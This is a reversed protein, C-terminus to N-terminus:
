PATTKPKEGSLWNDQIIQLDNPDVVDDGDIDGELDAIISGDDTMEWPCDNPDPLNNPDTCDCLWQDAVIAYDQLDVYCDFNLDGEFPAQCLQLADVALYSRYWKDQIDTVSIELEYSGATEETFIHSFRQWGQMSGYTGVDVTTDYDEAEPLESVDLGALLVGTSYNPDGEKKLIIHAQDSYPEFDFTGFFFWGQLTQGPLAEIQQSVKAQSVDPEVDGTSLLLFKEGDLPQLGVEFYKDPWNIASENRQNPNPIFEEVVAAYNEHEWSLPPYFDPVSNPEATLEFSGNELGAITASACVLWVLIIFLSARRTCIM